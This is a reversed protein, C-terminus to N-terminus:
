PGVLRELGWGITYAAVAAAGGVLLTELGSVVASRRVFRGKTAGIAFFALGALLGSWFFPRRVDAGFLLEAAYVLLPLSGACVFALFTAIGARWPSPAVGGLGLEESLMTEVWRDRDATIVDVVRDLDSGSFGKAAFIQRIEEREGAPHQAVHRLEIRRARERLEVDARSGLFNSAAMSLGDAVLNSLGLIIVIGSSLHAGAAGAVIAFTTVVGDVAGYVFDRVYSQSPGAGLRARIAAPTHSAELAERSHERGHEVPSV